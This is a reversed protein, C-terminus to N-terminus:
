ETFVAEDGLEERDKDIKAVILDRRALMAKLQAKKILGEDTLSALNQESLGM